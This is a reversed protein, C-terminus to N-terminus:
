GFNKLADKVRALYEQTAIRLEGNTVKDGFPDLLSLKEIKESFEDIDEVTINDLAEKYATDAGLLKVSEADSAHSYKSTDEVYYTGTRIEYVGEVPFVEPFEGDYPFSDEQNETLGREWNVLYFKGDDAQVVTEVSMSWRGESIERTFFDSEYVLSELESETFFRSSM